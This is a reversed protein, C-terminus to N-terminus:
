MLINANSTVDPHVVLTATSSGITQTYIHNGSGDLGGDTWGSGADLNDGSNGTVELTNTSDTVDLVNQATLTFTNAGGDSQMDVIEVDSVSGSFTTLDIDGGNVRVTDTGNKGAISIDAADWVLVDDGLGGDLRDGGGGGDLTDNGEFGVLNDAGGTGILVDDGATGNIVNLGGGDSGSDSGGETTGFPALRYAPEFDSGFEFESDSHLDDGGFGSQFLAADDGESDKGVDFNNTAAKEVLPQPDIFSLDGPGPPPVSVEHAPTAGPANDAGGDGENVTKSDTEKQDSQQSIVRIIEGVTPPGSGSLKLNLLPSLGVTTLDAPLDYLHISPVPLDDDDFTPYAADPASGSQRSGNDIDLPLDLLRDLGLLTLDVRVDGEDFGGLSPPNADVGEDTHAPPSTKIQENAQALLEPTGIVNTAPKM